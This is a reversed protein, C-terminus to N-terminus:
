MAGDEIIRRLHLGLNGLAHRCQAFVGLARILCRAGFDDLVLEVWLPHLLDFMGQVLQQFHAHVQGTVNFCEAELVKVCANAADGKGPVLMFPDGEQHVVLWDWTGSFRGKSPFHM